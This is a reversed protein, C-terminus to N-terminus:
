ADGVLVDYDVRYEGLYKKARRVINDRSLNVELFAGTVPQEARYFKRGARM